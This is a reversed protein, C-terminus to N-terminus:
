DALYREQKSIEQSVDTEMELELPTLDTELELPTTNTELELAASSTELEHAATFTEVESEFYKSGAGSWVHGEETMGFIIFAVFPFCCCCRFINDLAVFALCDNICGAAIVYALEFNGGAIINDLGINTIPLGINVISM